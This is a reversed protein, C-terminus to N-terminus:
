ILEKGNSELIDDRLSSFSPFTSDLTNPIHSGARPGKTPSSTRHAPFGVEIKNSSHIDKIEDYITSISQEAYLLQYQGTSNEILQDLAHRHM